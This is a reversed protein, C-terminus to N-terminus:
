VRLGGNLNDKKVINREKNKLSWTYYYFRSYLM